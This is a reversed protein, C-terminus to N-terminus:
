SGKEGLGAYKKLLRVAVWLLLLGTVFVAAALIIKLVPRVAFSLGFLRQFYGDLGMLSASSKQSTQESLLPGTGEFRAFFFNSSFSHCDGCGQIGLSQQAPRVQHSLPWTVPEASDHPQSHLYYNDNLTFLRGGSIYGFRGGESKGGNTEQLRNLMRQVQEETLTQERGALAHITRLHFESLVPTPLDGTLWVLRASDAPPGKWEEKELWGRNLRFLANQYILGPAGPANKITRLANLVDQIRSEAERDPEEAFPQFEPILLSTKEDNKVVYVPTNEPVEQDAPASDLRNDINRTFVRQNFIFGPSGEIDLRVSLTFLLRATEEEVNLIDEGAPAIDEPKLPIIEEGEMRVWFAPWILRRPEIKGHSNRVYVPEVVAPMETHWSAIGYIGLRNARSTRVRTGESSPLPGSHCVTCTLKEFHVQPIGKHAPYPAGLRGAEWGAKGPFEEGLHCGQCTFQARFAEGTDHAENEYGRIIRHDPGNRHCDVCNLGADSHVDNSSQPRTADVPTVSHCALCREDRPDGAIDLFARHRSDFYHDRYKVAPVVAFVSDDPNPGDYIDWTPPLRSAMGTVEGLGSAAVGAWRFNERLIQKAWESHSQLREANHCGMCNIELKGSVFWRSEPDMEDLVPESINGGNLHRGFQLTFDWASMGIDEPLLTGEWGRLSLPLLTGTNEDLWVWPEGPRGDNETKGANFHFGKSVTEYEHCVACSYRTSYPLPYSSTPIIQEGLEDFLPIVHVATTRSGDWGSKVEAEKEAKGTQSYLGVLTLFLCLWPLIFRGTKMIDLKLSM